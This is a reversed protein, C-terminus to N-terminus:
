HFKVNWREQNSYSLLELIVRGWSNLVNPGTFILFKGKIKTKTLMRKTNRLVAPIIISSHFFTEIQLRGPMKTNTLSASQSSRTLVSNVIMEYNHIQLKYEQFPWQTKFPLHPPNWCLKNNRELCDCHKMGNGNNRGTYTTKTIHTHVCMVDRVASMYTGYFLWFSCYTKYFLRFIYLESCRM